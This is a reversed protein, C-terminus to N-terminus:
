TLCPIKTLISQWKKQEEKEEVKGDENNVMLEIEM